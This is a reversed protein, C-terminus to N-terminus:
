SKKISELLNAKEALVQAVKEQNFDAEPIEATFNTGSATTATIRYVKEVAGGRTITTRETIDDVTYLKPM